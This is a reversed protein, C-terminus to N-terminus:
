FNSVKPAILKCNKLCDTMCDPKASANKPFMTTSMGVALSSVFACRGLEKLYNRRSTTHMPSLSENTKQYTTSIDNNVGNNKNTKATTLAVTSVFLSNSAIMTVLLIHHLSHRM